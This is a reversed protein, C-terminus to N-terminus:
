NSCTSRAKSSSKVYDLQVKKREHVYEMFWRCTQVVTELECRVQTLSHTSLDEGWTKSPKEGSAIAEASYVLRCLKHDRFLFPPFHCVSSAAPLINLDIDKLKLKLKSKGAKVKKTLHKKM